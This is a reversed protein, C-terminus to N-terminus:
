KEALIGLIAGIWYNGTRINRFGAEAFLEKLRAPPPFYKNSVPLYRFSNFENRHFILKGLIPALFYFHFNYIPKFLPNTPKGLDVCGIGGGPKLVRHIEKLGKLPFELNRLGYGIVVADFTGDAFPLEYCSGQLHSVNKFRATRRSFVKLMESSYDLGTIEAAPYKRAFQESLDGSGCCLDLLKGDVPFKLGALAKRDFYRKLGFSHMVNTADYKEALNDFFARNCDSWDESKFYKDFGIKRILEKKGNDMSDM